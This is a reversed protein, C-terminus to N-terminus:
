IAELILSDIDLKSNRKKSKIKVFYASGQCCRYPVSAFFAM